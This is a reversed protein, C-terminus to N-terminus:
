VTQGSTNPKRGNQKKGWRIGSGKIGNRKYYDPDKKMREKTKNGGKSGTKRFFNTDYVKNEKNDTEMSEM